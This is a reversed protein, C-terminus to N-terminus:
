VQVLLSNDDDTYAKHHSKAFSSTEKVQFMDADGIKEKMFRLMPFSSVFSSHKEISLVKTAYDFSRM